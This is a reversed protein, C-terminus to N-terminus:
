LGLVAQMDYLGSTKTTLFRAARLAGEAYSQRSSSKHTIEIREGPGAFLVTHDGVIDGGRITTFGITGAERAGTNGQRAYVAKEDLEVGLERAVIEGMHLATGSPADVKHRHHAEIIEIDYGSYMIRAALEILKFTANVGVSMNPAFVMPLHQSADKLAQKGAEDFGTTGIVMKVGKTKAVALHALTGDPRMFDILCDAKSLGQAIDATIRVGTQRGLWAAADEGMGPSGAVDLAGALEMDPAALITEILMHGMRGSAGAVAIRLKTM